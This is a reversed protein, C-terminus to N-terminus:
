SVSMPSLTAPPRVCRPGVRRAGSPNRPVDPLNRRAGSPIRRASSKERRASPFASPASRFAPPALPQARPADSPKRSIDGRLLCVAPASRRAASRFHSPSSGSIKMPKPQIRYCVSRARVLNKHAGARTPRTQGWRAAPSNPCAVPASLCVRGVLNLHSSRLGRHAGEGKACRPSLICLGGFRGTGDGYGPLAASRAAEHTQISQRPRGCTLGVLNSTLSLQLCRHRRTSMAAWAREQGAGLPHATTQRQSEECTRHHPRGRHGRDNTAATPPHEHREPKSTASSTWDLGSSLSPLANVFSHCAFPEEGTETSHNTWGPPRFLIAWRNMAPHMAAHPRTGSPRCFRM